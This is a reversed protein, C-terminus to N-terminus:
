ARVDKRQLDRLGASDVSHHTRGGNRICGAHGEIAARHKFAADPRNCRCVSEGRERLKGPTRLQESWKQQFVVDDSSAGLILVEVKVQRFPRAQAQMDILVLESEITAVFIASRVTLGAGPM